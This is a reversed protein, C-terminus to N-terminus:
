QVQYRLYVVGSGFTRTEILRLNIRNDLAPFFPTGGGLVVPHVLLRYEDILGLQMVTSALNPGGIALDKGPQEKLKRIEEAINDRVLRSNWEVKDLTKSFVVKPMDKWIRAFEVEYDAASPKTDATPWYGVMIEYLRRGYLFTGTERAEDNAFRHLEADPASWDIERNRTEIFGDLSVFMSYILKRMM